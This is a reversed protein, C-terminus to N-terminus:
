PGRCLRSVQGVGLGDSQALLDLGHLREAEGHGVGTAVLQRYNRGSGLFPNLPFFGVKPVSPYPRAIEKGLKLRCSAPVRVVLFRGGRWPPENKVL